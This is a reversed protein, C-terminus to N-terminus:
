PKEKKGKLPYSNVNNGQKRLVTATPQAPTEGKKGKKGPTVKVGKESDIHVPM